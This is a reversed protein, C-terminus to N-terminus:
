FVNMGEFCNRVIDKCNKILTIKKNGTKSSSFSDPNREGDVLAREIQELRDLIRMFFRIIDGEPMNTGKLLDIFKKQNYCPYILSTLNEM